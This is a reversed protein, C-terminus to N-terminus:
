EAAPVLPSSEIPEAPPLPAIEIYEPELDPLQPKPSGVEFVEFTNLLPDSADIESTFSASKQTQEAQRFHVSSSQNTELSEAVPVFSLDADASTPRNRGAAAANGVPQSIDPLLASDIDSEAPVAQIAENDPQGDEWESAEGPVMNQNYPGVSVARPHSVFGHLWDAPIKNKRRQKADTYAQMPWLDETLFIENYDLLSGKEFHVNRVGITYEVLSRHFNTEADLFRRQADLLVDFAVKDADFAAQVADLQESAAIRRDDATELVSWTRSLEAIVESLALVVEREQESLIAQERSLLLEAYEVAAHARRNGIPMSFEFGLHWEQFDGNLLTGWANNLASIDLDAQTATGSVSPTHQQLLDRGLGRWRYRGVMDLRPLLFNKSAILEQERQKIVWKQRRLEARRTLAEVLISDWDFAIEALIPEDNPRLLKGDNIPLGMLLRLRRESSLVGGNGRFSGGATGNNTRTGGELRGSLANQVQEQFRFYQERAQAEKEAEGGVRGAKYLANVRNWTALANDRAVIRADLDRYAFYLDWYANEVNSIFDRVSMEFDALSTDTRLRAIVVGNVNSPSNSPGAIRNFETGSGQLLPHRAEVDLWTTWASGFFNGPANNADYETHNLLTLETGTAARKTLQSEVTATDQQLKRTGGGFFQNNLPRDNKEHFATTAFSADFESLAAAVGFRPDLEQLAVDFTTDVDGPNRLVVGGLDRLVRSNMLSTHVAEQLAVYHFEIDSEDTVTLPAATALVDNNMPTVVDPYEITTSSLEYYSPDANQEFSDDPRNFGCGTVLGLAAILLVSAIATSRVWALGRRRSANM